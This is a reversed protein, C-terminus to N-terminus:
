LITRTMYTLHSGRGYIIYIRSFIDERSCFHWHGQSHRSIYLHSHLGQWAQEFPSGLFYQKCFRSKIALDFITLSYSWSIGCDCVASLGEADHPLAMCCDRSVLFVFLAFCGAREEGDFKNGLARPFKIKWNNNFDFDNYSSTISPIFCWHSKIFILPREYKVTMQSVFYFSIYPSKLKCSQTNPSHKLVTHDEPKTQFILSTAFTCGASM